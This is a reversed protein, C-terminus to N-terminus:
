RKKAEMFLSTRGLVVGSRIDLEYKEWNQIDSDSPSKRSIETFGCNKLLRALSFRDYMWLHVEGGLRFRGIKKAESFLGLKDIIEEILYKFGKSHMRRLRQLFATNESGTRWVTARNEIYTKNILPQKLLKAMEGGSANRVTQDYMELMIWDYNAESLKTSNELNENLFRKYENVIEELDPVVVRIIGDPKLVRFCEKIFAPAKDKSFHELVQSHYVADFHNDPFPIGRLVNARIVNPSQPFTDINIWDPHFKNGCGVNLLQPCENTM